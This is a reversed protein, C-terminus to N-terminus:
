FRSFETLGAGFVGELLKAALAGAVAVGASPSATASLVRPRRGTEICQLCSLAEVGGNTGAVESALAELETL